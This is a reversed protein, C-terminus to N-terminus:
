DVVSETFDEEKLDSFAGTKRKGMPSPKIFGPVHVIGNDFTLHTGGDRNRKYPRTEIVEEDIKRNM